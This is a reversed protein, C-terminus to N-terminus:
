PSKRARAQILEAVISVAIEEPTEADISLGIPSHVREFVEPAFGKGRLSEYIADRKRRSGIMGIYGAETKLAEALLTKDHAHGRTVIVVYSDRDIDLGLLANDFSSPVLVEDATEFRARNAFEERDDLVVTRFGVLSTLPALKQSIHGAGFIYVTGNHCLPEVLFRVGSASVVEPERSGALGLLEQIKTKSEPGLGGVFMGDLTGDGGALVQVVTDQGAKGDPIKTILWGREGSELATALKRYLELNLPDAGDVFHILVEVQGGCIMGMRGADEASLVFREIRASGHEFVERAMGQIRAELIGGGITGIISADSRVVMRTGAARPASGSRSLITALVFSEGGSLLDAMSKFLNM